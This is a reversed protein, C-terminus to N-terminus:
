TFQYADLRAEILQNQADFLMKFWGKGLTAGCSPIGKGEGAEDSERCSIEATPLFAKVNALVSDRSRATGIGLAAIPEATFREADVSKVVLRENTGWFYHEVGNSDVYSCEGFQECSDDGLRMLMTKVKSKPTDFPITSFSASVKSMLEDGIDGKQTAPAPGAHLAIAVVFSLVKTTM